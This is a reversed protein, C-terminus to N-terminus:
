SMFATGGAKLSEDPARRYYKKHNESTGESYPDKILEFLEHVGSYDGSLTFPNGPSKGADAKTYADGRMRFLLASRAASSTSSPSKAHRLKSM